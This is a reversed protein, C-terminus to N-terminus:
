WERSQAPHDRIPQQRLLEAQVILLKTPTGFASVFVAHM